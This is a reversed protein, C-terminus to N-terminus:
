LYGRPDVPNGNVRVEFHLHPGTSLGTSGVYGIVQGGSVHQGVRVAIRSQHAYLTALGGGHDIVVANGYGGMTGATVVTGAGAAHIASGYAAGFDMGAHLKRTGYVPHVRWGYESTVPASIPYRLRGTGQAPPSGDSGGPSPALAAQQRARLAAALADSEAQLSAVEREYRAKRAQIGALIQQERSERDAAEARASAQQARLGALSSLEAEATRRARRARDREEVVRHQGREVDRRLARYREVERDRQGALGELYHNGVAIQSPNEADVLTSMAAAGSGNNRYVEAAYEALARQAGAALRRLDDLRARLARYRAEAREAEARAAAVRGGAAAIRGDLAAIRSDLDRRAARTAQLDALARLEDRGAGDLLGRAQKMRNGLDDGGATPAARVPAAAAVLSIALLLPVFRPALRAPRMVPM